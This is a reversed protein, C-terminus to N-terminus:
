EITMLDYLPSRLFICWATKRSIEKDSNDEVDDLCRGCAKCITIMTYIPQNTSFSKVANKKVQTVPMNCRNRRETSSPSFTISFISKTSTTVFIASRTLMGMKSIRGTPLRHQGFTPSLALGRGVHPLFRPFCRVFVRQSPRPVLTFRGADVSGPRSHTQLFDHNYRSSSDIESKSHLTSQRLFHTTILVRRPPLRPCFVHVTENGEAKALLFDFHFFKFHCRICHDIAGYTCKATGDVDQCHGINPVASFLLWKNM